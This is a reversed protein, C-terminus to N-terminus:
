GSRKALKQAVDLRLLEALERAARNEADLRARYTAFEQSPTDYSSQMARKGSTVVDGTAVDTLVYEGTMHLTAATARNENDVEVRAENIILETVVLKMKYKATAPEGSGGNFLFILDNRVQQAYRTDVPEILITKLEATGSPLAGTKLDANANSYLPQVTCASILSAAMLLSAAGIRTLAPRRDHLSM